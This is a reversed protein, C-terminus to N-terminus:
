TPCTPTVPNALDGTSIEFTFLLLFRLAAIGQKRLYSAEMRVPVCVVDLSSWGLFLRPTFCTAGAWSEKAGMRENAGLSFILEPANWTTGLVLM